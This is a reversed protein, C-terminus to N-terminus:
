LAPPHPNQEASRAERRRKWGQYRDLDNVSIGEDTCFAAKPVQGKARDWRALIGDRRETETRSLKKRGRKRKGNGGAGTESPAPTAPPALPTPATAPQGGLLRLEYLARDFNGPWLPLEKLSELTLEPTLMDRMARWDDVLLTDRTRSQAQFYPAVPFLAYDIKEALGRLQDQAQQRAKAYEEDAQKYKQEARPEVEWLRPEPAERPTGSGGGGIIVGAAAARRRKEEERRREELLEARAEDTCRQWVDPTRQPWNERVRKMETLLGTLEVYKEPTPKDM